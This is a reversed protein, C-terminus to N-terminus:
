KSCFNEHLLQMYVERPIKRQQLSLQLKKNNDRPSVMVKPIKKIKFGLDCVYCM